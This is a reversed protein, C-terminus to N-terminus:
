RTKRTWLSNQATHTVVQFPREPFFTEFFDPLEWRGLDLVSEDVAFILVDAGVVPKGQARVKVQGRVKAGPEVVPTALTPVVELRQAPLDAKIECFGFRDAPFTEGLAPKVIQVCVYANPAFSPLVPISFREVNGAFEVQRRYLIRDTQVTILAVGAWPSQVDISAEEGVRYRKRDCTVQLSSENEVVVSVEREEEALMTADSVPPTGPQQPATVKVVYNGGVKMPITKEAPTVFEGEWVKEFTPYNRYRNLNPGLREKDTKIERRFIEAKATLGAAPRDTADFSGIQLSLNKGYASELHVGLIKPVFQVKVVAGGRVTQATSDSTVDVIWYVKARAFTSGEPFPSKTSITVSGEADLTTTGEVTAAVRVERDEQATAWGANTLEELVDGSYGRTPSDRSHQDDIAWGAKALEELVDGSYGRTPSDPSHRDDLVLHSVPTGEGEMHLYADRLWDDVIWEAKWRVKAGANRAGGFLNSRIHATVTDGVVDQSETVVSFPPARFETVTVKAVDDAVKIFYEGYATTPIEWEGEFAGAASVIASSKHYSTGADDTVEWPVQEDKPITPKESQLKRVFAKFKVKEGPRYVNRDTVIVCSLNPEEQTRSALSGSAFVPLDVLQMCQQGPPGVLVKSDKDIFGDFVAEGNSDTQIPGAFKGSSDLIQVPIEAVPMADAMNAVRLVTTTPFDQQTVMCDGRSIISRNGVRRGQSDRGVIEVLFLGPDSNGPKWEIRRSTELDDWSAALEGSAVVPLELSPILLDTQQYLNEGSNPDYQPKGQEDKVYYGFERVRDCVTALKDLPIQAIEWDLIDTNVQVLSCRVYPSSARQFIYREPLIVAPRKPKFTINWVSDEALPFGDNSLLGAKLRLRYQASSDFNAYIEFGNGTPIIRREVNSPEITVRHLNGPDTDFSQDAVVRIFAGKLPENYGAVAVIKPEYTTGGTVDLLHPLKEGTTPTQIRDIILDFGRGVPLPQTPEVLLWGQASLQQREELNVEVPFREYTKHDQFYVAEVVDRPLVDRSFELRVRPRAPLPDAPNRSQIAEEEKQTNKSGEDNNKAGEGVSKETNDENAPSKSNDEETSGGNSSPANLFEISTVAFDDDEYAVGLDKPGVPNGALDKLGPRLKVTYRVHFITAAPSVFGPINDVVFCDPMILRGETQSLWRWEVEVTPQLIIPSPMGDRRLMELDVMPTPFTVRIGQDPGPPRIVQDPLPGKDPVLEIADSDSSSATAGRVGFAINFLVLASAAFYCTPTRM